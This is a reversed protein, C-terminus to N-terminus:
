DNRYGNKEKLGAKYGAEYAAELIRKHEPNIRDEVKVVEGTSARITKYDIFLGLEKALQELEKNM